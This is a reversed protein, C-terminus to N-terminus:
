RSPTTTAFASTGLDPRRLEAEVDILRAEAILAAATPTLPDRDPVILGIEHTAAPEILPLMLLGHEDGILYRITHPLITSWEGRRLHSVLTVLSTTELVPDLTIGIARCYSDIIRRNQMAPTLLCLRLDAAEAWSISTRGAFPGDPPTLVVYRERYVPVSRVHLLPENDLYTLGIDLSCEDLGRQIERSTLSSVTLRVRPHRASFPTTLLPLVPLAVPIGGIRLHGTLGQRMASLEQSLADREALLHRAWALIHEGEITFGHFRHGREVIVVGFCEELHKLGASLAPQTVNCAAAARAFHREQALAVLYEFHRILM